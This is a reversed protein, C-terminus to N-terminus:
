SRPRLQAAPSIQSITKAPLLSAPLDSAAAFYPQLPIKRLDLVINAGVFGPFTNPDVDAHVISVLQSHRLTAAESWAASTTASTTALVAVFALAISKM